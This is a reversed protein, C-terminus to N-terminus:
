RSIIAQVFSVSKKPGAVRVTIRYYGRNAVGPWTGKQYNLMQRGAGMSSGGQATQDTSCTAGNLSGEATCMRHIVYSIDNGATDKGLNRAEGAEIWNLDDHAETPTKNGTLDAADGSTAYYGDAPRNNELSASNANLWLIAAEVGSDGSNSASQKFAVNGAIMTATDVSRIMAISALTMAVLIIMTVILIIGRQRRLGAGAYPASIRRPPSIFTTSM